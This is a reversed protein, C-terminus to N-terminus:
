QPLLWIREKPLRIPIVEGARITSNASATIHWTQGDLDIQIQTHTGMYVTSLVTGQLQNRSSTPKLEINEPRVTVLVPGDPQQDHTYRDITLNGLTTQVIHGQKRGKLFNENRFFRAIETSRPREYFAHPTDYQQLVGNFMLAIRDALMVAEEQDHTVFISTINLDQQITRILERMELRLNADLNALPEDLLLVNPQIVLARALAIRQQQGGSLEHAQRKEYGPLKVLELMERVRAEREAKPVGRMRLGFGVNEAVNMTPFLLHKQFVMVAGRKETPVTLVSKGDFLVDGSTPVLLGTIMRLTTTKGCGSPGLFAVLQGSEIVLNMKDVAVVDGFHRTLNKLVVTTM